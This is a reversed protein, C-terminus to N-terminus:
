LLVESLDSNFESLAQSVLDLVFDRSLNFENNKISNVIALTQNNLPYYKTILNIDASQIFNQMSAIDSVFVFVDLMDLMLALVNLTYKSQTSNSFHHLLSKRLVRLYYNCGKFAQQYVPAIRNIRKKFM